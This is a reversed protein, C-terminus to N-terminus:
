FQRVTTGEGGATEGITLIGLVVEVKPWIRNHRLNGMPVTVLSLYISFTHVLLGMKICRFIEIKFINNIEVIHYGRFKQTNSTEAM